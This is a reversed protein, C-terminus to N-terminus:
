FSARCYPRTLGKPRGRKRLSSTWIEGSGSTQRARATMTRSVRSIDVWHARVAGRFGLRDCMALLESQTCDGYMAEPGQLHRM